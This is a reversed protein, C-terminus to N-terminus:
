PVMIFINEEVNVFGLREYFRKLMDFRISNVSVMLKIPDHFLKIAERMLLTAGGYKRYDEHVWLSHLYIPREDTAM